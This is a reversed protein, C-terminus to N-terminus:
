QDHFCGTDQIESDIQASSQSRSMRHCHKLMLWMIRTVNLHMERPAKCKRHCTAGKQVNSIRICLSNTVMTSAGYYVLIVPLRIEVGTCLDGSNANECAFFTNPCVKVFIDTVHTQRCFLKKYSWLSNILM